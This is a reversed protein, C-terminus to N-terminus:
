STGFRYRQHIDASDTRFVKFGLPQQVLEVFGFLYVGARYLYLNRGFPSVLIPQKQELVLGVVVRGFDLRESSGRGTDAASYAVRQGPTSINICGHPNGSGAVRRHRKGIGKGALQRLTFDNGRCCGSIGRVSVLYSKGGTLNVFYIM